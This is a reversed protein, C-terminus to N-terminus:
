GAGTHLHCRVTRAAAPAADAPEVGCRDFQEPCRPAFACGPPLWALDPVAGPIAPLRRGPMSGPVSQLLARTYPHAPNDLVARAPGQEVIRGAYMVAVRDALTSVVGLDHTILVLALNYATRMDRLLDLIEAQITVDLATTPEDAILLPPRCAIAAAIVARQRQGGSLQHPYDGARRAPDPLRVADLLAVARRAADQRTALGHVVLTEAIQDGITFVPNLAASPEQFVLGIRAGRVARRARGDLALLNRGEFEAVGGTVRGPPPVLGLLSLATMSKGSGSEGVLGLVEGAELDFGVGNVARVVRTVGDREVVFETTLDRVRLLPAM